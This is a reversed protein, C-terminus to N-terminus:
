QGNDIEPVFEDGYYEAELKVQDKEMERATRKVLPTINYQKKIGEQSEDTKLWNLYANMTIFERRAPDATGRFYLEGGEVVPIYWGHIRTIKKGIYEYGCRRIMQRKEQWMEIDQPAVKARSLAETEDIGKAAAITVGKQINTFKDLKEKGIVDKWHVIQIM